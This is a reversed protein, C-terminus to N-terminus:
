WTIPASIFPHSSVIWVVIVTSGNGVTEAAPASWVNHWDGPVAVNAPLVGTTPVPKHVNTEPVPVIVVGVLGVDPNVPKPTPVFTNWHVIEFPVQVADVSWTVM